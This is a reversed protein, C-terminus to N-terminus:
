ALVWGCRMPAQVESDFVFTAVMPSFSKREVSFDATTASSPVRRMSSTAASPVVVTRRSDTGTSAPSTTSAETMRTAARRSNRAAWTARALASSTSKETCRLAVIIFTESGITKPWTAHAGEERLREGLVALHEGGGAEAGVVAEAGDELAQLGHRVAEAVLDLRGEVGLQRLARGEGHDVGVLADGVQVDRGVDDDVGRHRGHDAGGAVHPARVALLGVGERHQGVARVGADVLDDDVVAAGVAGEVRGGHARDRVDAEHGLLGLLVAGVVLGELDRGGARDTEDVRGAVDNQLLGTESPSMKRAQWVLSAGIRSQTFSATVRARAM